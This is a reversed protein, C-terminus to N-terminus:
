IYTRNLEYDCVESHKEMMTDVVKRQEDNFESVLYHKDALCAAEALKKYGSDNRIYKTYAKERLITIIGNVIPEAKMWTEKENLNKTM